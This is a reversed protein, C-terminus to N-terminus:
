AFTLFAGFKKALVRSILGAEGMCLAITPRIMRHQIEFAELNDRITRAFWVIKNVDGASAAMEALINNLRAPRDSFDHSSVIMGPRKERPVRENSEGIVTFQRYAKLEVDIYAPNEMSAAELVALRDGEPLECRGGEWVPRCTVICPLTSQRILAKVQEHGTFEDIRLEVLDAGMEAALAIDRQARALDSVFIAVCLHTMHSRIGAIRSAAIGCKCDGAKQVHQEILKKTAEGAEWLPLRLEGSDLGAVKMAYKIGVPNGDLFLSRIFQFLRRHIKAAEKFDDELALRVMSKIESPILNSAVSIVGKAGISMLPLTLSDDGSVITIDCLSMIETAM